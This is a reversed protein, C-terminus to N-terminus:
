KIDKYKNYRAYIFIGIALVLTCITFIIINEGTQPIKGSAVTNDKGQTNTNNPKEGEKVEALQIKPSSTLIVKYDKDEIDKYTLEVKENTAIIKNLLETNKMDKIKLKYILTAVENGKLTGIDWSITKDKNDISDSVTGINPKGVYSFEFNETIHEPFYDVIKVETMDPQILELVDEYINERVITDINKDKFEYSKGYVPNENTGYLKQVYPSGDFDLTKEGTKESYWTQNYSTDDPRLLIFSINSEKLKLIENKTYTVIKEHKGKVAEETTAYEALFGGHEVMSKVGIAIDPVGDYLSILIKNANKSYSKNALRIASQLNLHYKEKASNMKKIGSVINEVNDTLNVVIEANEESGKINGEDKDGWSAKGNEDVIIDSITGKIGVIGIKTKSNAKIIKEALNEINNITKDLKEQSNASNESIIIYIETNEYNQKEKETEKKTNSLKLEITVEGASPNSDVITKSIYGQENELYKTESSQEVVNLATKLDTAFVNATYTIILISIIAIYCLKKLIKM